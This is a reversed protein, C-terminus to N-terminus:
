AQGERRFVRAARTWREVDAVVYGGSIRQVLGLEEADAMRRRLTERHLGTLHSLDRLSSPSVVPFEPTSEAFCRGGVLLYIMLVEVTAKHQEACKFLESVEAVVSKARTPLHEFAISQFSL